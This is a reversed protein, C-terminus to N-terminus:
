YYIDGPDRSQKKKRKNMRFIKNLSINVVRNAFLGMINVNIDMTSFGEAGFVPVNNDSILGDKVEWAFGMWFAVLDAQWWQMGRNEFYDAIYASGIFHIFNADRSVEFSSNLWRWQVKQANLFNSTILVFSFSLLINKM